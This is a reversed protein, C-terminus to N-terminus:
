SLDESKIDSQYSTMMNVFASSCSLLILINRRSVKNESKRLLKKKGFDYLRLVKGVGVLVKGQFSCLALPVEEVATKHLFEMATCEMNLRYTYLYNAGISRPALQFDKAIGIM